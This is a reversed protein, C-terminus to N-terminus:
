ESAPRKSAILRALGDVTHTDSDTLEEPTLQIGFASEVDVIFSLLEFSDLDSEKVYNFNNLTERSRRDGHSALLSYIKSRIHDTNM